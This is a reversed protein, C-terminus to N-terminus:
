RRTCVGGSGDRNSIRVPNCRKNNSIKFNAKNLVQEPTVKMGIRWCLASFPTIEKTTADMMRNFSIGTSLAVMTLFLM